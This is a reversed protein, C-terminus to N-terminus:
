NKFTWRGDVIYNKSYRLLAYIGFCAALILALIFVGIAGCAIITYAYYNLSGDNPLIPTENNYKVIKANNVLYGMWYLAIPGGIGILIVKAFRRFM